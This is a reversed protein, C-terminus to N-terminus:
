SQEDDSGIDCKIEKCAKSECQRQMRQRQPQLNNGQDGDNSRGKVNSARFSDDSGDLWEIFGVAGNRHLRLTNAV